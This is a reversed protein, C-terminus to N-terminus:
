QGLQGEARPAPQEPEDLRPGRELRGAVAKCADVQAREVRGLSVGEAHSIVTRLVAAAIEEQERTPETM